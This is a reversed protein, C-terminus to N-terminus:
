GGSPKPHAAKWAQARTRALTRMQNLYAQVDPNAKLFAKKDANLQQYFATLKAKQQQQFTVWSAPAQPVTQTTQAFSIAPWLIWVAMLGATMRKM